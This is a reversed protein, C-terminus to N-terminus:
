NAERDEGTVGSGSRDSGTIRSGPQAMGEVRSGAQDSGSIRDGVPVELWCIITGAIDFGCVDGRPPVFPTVPTTIRFHIVKPPKIRVLTIQIPAFVVGAGVVTPEKLLALTKVPRIRVLTVVIEGFVPQRVVAPPRLTSKARGRLSPALFIEPGLPVAVRL